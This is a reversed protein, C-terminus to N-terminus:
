AIARGGLGFLGHVARPVVGNGSEHELGESRVPKRGGNAMESAMMYGEGRVTEIVRNMEEPTAAMGGRVGDLRALRSAGLKKRLYNVYVDVVNTGADPSMQWVEKLLESRTCTRGRAQMLYELLAFEKTTLEVERGDRTVTREMRNLEVSGHRVVPSVSRDRRRQLARCRASLESFSFPKLLCDDAGLNLCRVRDEVANRGTLVIVSTEDFHGQMGELVQMGDKCPLGLDLVVLEPVDALVKELGVEGDAALDVQHGEAQLGRQLFVRLAADDEVILIRM